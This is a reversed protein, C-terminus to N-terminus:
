KSYYKHHFFYGDMRAQEETSNKEHIQLRSNVPDTPLLHKYEVKNFLASLVIEEPFISFFPWGLKVMEYYDQIVGKVCTHTFNLGFVITQLYTADELNTRTLSNLLRLTQPFAMAKWHSGSYETKVIVSDKELATFLPELNNLAYCGSDIWIVKTFGKKEAELMMFIKFSYPVGAYKMETGTPNPFGGTFLYFYGQFGSEELSKLIQQSAILRTNNETGEITHVLPVCCVFCNTGDGGTGIKYLTQIPVQSPGALTQTIGRSIRYRFDSQTYHMNQPAYLEQLDTQIDKARLQTQIEAYDEASYDTKDEVDILFPNPKLVFPFFNLDIDPCSIENPFDLGKIPLSQTNIPPIEHFFKKNLYAVELVNPLGNSAVLDANNGHAHVMYHTNSLKKLCDRKQEYGCGFSNITLGHWSTNTIGHIEIVIQAFKSLTEEEVGQLWAWEGGEIDMKLLINHFDQIYSDLSTTKNDNVTGIQKKVFTMSDRLNEPLTDITGDFGFCQSTQLKHKQIFDVLFDDSREIGASILCDYPTDVDAIVFGGLGYRFKKPYEYVVFLPEISDLLTDNTSM